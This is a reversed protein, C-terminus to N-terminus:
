SIIDNTIFDTTLFDSIELLPFNSDESQISESDSDLFISETGM